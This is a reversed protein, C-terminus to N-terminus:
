PKGQLGDLVFYAAGGSLKGGFRAAEVAFSAPFGLFMVDDDLRAMDSDSEGRRVWEVDMNDDGSHGTKLHLEHLSVSVYGSPELLVSALLLGGRYTLLYSHLRVKGPEIPLEARMDWNPRLIYCYALDVWVVYGGRYCAAACCRGTNLDDSSVRLWKRHGPRLFSARFTPSCHRYKPDFNYLLVSGDDSVIRHRHDLWENSMLCEGGAGPFSLRAASLPNVLSTENNGRVLWAAGGKAYAVRRDRVCIGPSRYTTKSFVCRCRQDEVENVAASPALLWPLLLRRPAYGSVDAAAIRWKRCVARFRVNDSAAHLRGAINCLLEPLLDAWPPSASAISTTTKAPM